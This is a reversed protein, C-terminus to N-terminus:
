HWSVLSRSSSLKSLRASLGQCRRLYMTRVHNEIVTLNGATWGRGCCVIRLRPITPYNSINLKPFHGWPIHYKFPPVLWINLKLKKPGRNWCVRRKRIRVHAIGFRCLLGNYRREKRERNGRKEKTRSCRWWAWFSETLLASAERGKKARKM